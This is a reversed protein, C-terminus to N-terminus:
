QNCPSAPISREGAHQCTMPGAHAICLIRMRVLGKTDPTLLVCRFKSTLPKDGNGQPGDPDGLDLGGDMFGQHHANEAAAAAAAAAALPGVAGMSALHALVEEPKANHLQELAAVAAQPRLCSFLRQMPVDGKSRCTSLSTTPATELSTQIALRVWPDSRTNTTKFGGRAPM